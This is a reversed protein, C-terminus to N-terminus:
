SPDSTPRTKERREAVVRMAGRLSNVTSYHNPVHTFIAQWTAKPNEKKYLMLRNFCDQAPGEGKSTPRGAIGFPTMVNLTQHISAVYHARFADNGETLETTVRSVITSTRPPLLVSVTDNTISLLGIGLKACAAIGKASPRTGVAAYRENTILDAIFAQHIVSQTLCRKLEVVILSHDSRRGVLDIM